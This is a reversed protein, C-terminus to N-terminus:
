PIRETDESTANFVIQEGSVPSDIVQGAHAM